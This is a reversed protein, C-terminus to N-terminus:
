KIKERKGKKGRVELPNKVVKKSEPVSRPL